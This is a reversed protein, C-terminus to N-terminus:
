IKLANEVMKPYTLEIITKLNVIDERNYKVLLNLAELDGKEYKKWLRVADFGDMGDTDESRCIGLLKEIKKLGGGYGIRRLPYMLDIHLQKFEIEPFESKIFPIDFRAGNFSVLLRYRSFEEVLDELNTGRVYTKVENGNYIGVVTIKDRCPSLGTTEIDFFAVSDSFLSYARWHEASPLRQSFFFCDKAALHSSSVKIGECIRAKKVSPILVRDEMELFEDWTHIGSAWIKQELAKGVGPIHIYTNKLM